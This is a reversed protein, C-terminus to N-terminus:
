PRLWLTSLLDIHHNPVAALDMVPLKEDASRKFLIVPETCTQTGVLSPVLVYRFSFSYGVEDASKCDGYEWHSAM